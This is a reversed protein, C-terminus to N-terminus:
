APSSGDFLSFRGTMKSFDLDSLALYGSAGDANPEIMLMQLGLAAMRANTDDVLDGFIKPPLRRALPHEAGPQNAWRVLREYDTLLVPRLSAFEGRVFM